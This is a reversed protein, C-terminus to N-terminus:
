EDASESLCRVHTGPKGGPPVEGVPDEKEEPGSSWTVSRAGRAPLSNVRTTSVPTGGLSNVRGTKQEEGGARAGPGVGRPPAVAGLAVTNNHAVRVLAAQLGAADHSRRRFNDASHHSGSLATLVAGTAQLPVRWYGCPMMECLRSGDFNVCFPVFFYLLFFFFWCGVGGDHMVHM